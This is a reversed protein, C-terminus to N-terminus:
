LGFYCWNVVEKERLAVMEEAGQLTANLSKVKRKLKSIMNKEKGDDSENKHESVSNDPMDDIVKKLRKNEDRLIQILNASQVM